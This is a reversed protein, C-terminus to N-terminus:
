KEVHENQLQHFIVAPLDSVNLLVAADKTVENKKGRLAPQQQLASQLIEVEEEECIQSQICNNNLCGPSNLQLTILWICYQWVGLCEFCQLTNYFENATQFRHEM